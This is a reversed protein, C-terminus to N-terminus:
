SDMAAYDIKGRVMITDGVHIDAVDVIRPNDREDLAKMITASSAEVVYEMNDKGAIRILSGAVLIVIGIITASEKYPVTTTHRVASNRERNLNTALSPSSLLIASAILPVVLLSTIKAM